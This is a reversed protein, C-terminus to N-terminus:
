KSPFPCFEFFYKESKILEKEEGVVSNPHKSLNYRILGYRQM